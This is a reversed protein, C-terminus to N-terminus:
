AEANAESEISVWKINSRPAIFYNRNKQGNSIGLIIILVYIIIQSEIKPVHAIM